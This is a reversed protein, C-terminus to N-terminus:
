RAVHILAYMITPLGVFGGFAVIGLAKYQFKTQEAVAAELTKFRADYEGHRDGQTKVAALVELLAEKMERVDGSLGSLGAQMVSHREEILALRTALNEDM